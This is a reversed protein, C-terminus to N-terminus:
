KLLARIGTPLEFVTPLVSDYEIASIAIVQQMGGTETRVTTAQLLNGFKRYDTEVSTVTLTGMPTEHADISGAKLGTAVDYFEIEEAGTKTVLRLKYCPRGDFQTQELTAMSAYRDDSKLEGYFDSDFRREELQKGELLMPGTMPSVSWGHTGDFGESVEGVGPIASKMLSKNPAAGYLEFTGNVGASPMSVTGRAFTSTHALVAQRGGIAAIHRDLVSRASPLTAPASKLPAAPTKPPRAPAPFQASLSTALAAAAVGAGLAWAIRRSGASLARGPLWGYQSM